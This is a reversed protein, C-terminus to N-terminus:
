PLRDAIGFGAYAPAMLMRRWQGLPFRHPPARMAMPVRDSARGLALDALLMGVFSGMAVGNGHYAFGALVTPDDPLTGVFPLQGRSLCVLGSWGHTVQISRWAPFMRRFDRLIAARARAEGRPGSMLGGRMGFLFRGDPLKRFYHLLHRTDYCMQSSRWGQAAQEGETLPRTVIVNSQTPMYRARLWDPVDESSYGNTAVIVRDARVVGDSTRARGAQLETVASGDHFRVGAQRAAKVLGALYKRPNLAFGIPVTLASHFPGGIGLSAPDAIEAHVGHNEEVRRAEAEFGRADRARHALMTEGDSHRDVDLDLRAILDSVLSVAEREARHWALRGEKGFRVDLSADSAMGGGLCCFGGNRGSAGWGVRAAELVVVSAGAQALHLAASVGTFGAGVIAVDCQAEGRLPVFDPIDCTEDWWCGKRPGPGYTYDPFIRRM